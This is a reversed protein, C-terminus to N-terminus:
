LRPKRREAGKKRKMEAWATTTIKKMEEGISENPDDSDAGSIDLDAGSISSASSGENLL